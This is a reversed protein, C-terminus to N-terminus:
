RLWERVIPIAAIIAAVASILAVSITAWNWRRVLRRSRSDQHKLWDEAFGKTITESGIGRLAAQSGGDNQAIRSRVNEPSLAELVDLWRRQQDPDGPAYRTEFDM